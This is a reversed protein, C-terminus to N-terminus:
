TQSIVPHSKQRQQLTFSNRVFLFFQKMDLKKHTNVYDLFACVLKGGWGGYDSIDEGAYENNNCASICYSFPKNIAPNWKEGTSKFVNGDVSQWPLDLMSGSHCTDILCFSTCMDKMEIYFADRIEHDLVIDRGVRIYQDKGTTYGHASITFLIDYKDSYQKVTKSLVGLFDAKSKVYHEGVDKKDSIIVCKSGEWKEGILKSLNNADRYSSNGNAHLAIIIGIIKNRCPFSM